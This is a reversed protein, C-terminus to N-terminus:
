PSKRCLAVGACTATSPNFPCRLAQRFRWPRSVLQVDDARGSGSTRTDDAPLSVRYDHLPQASFNAVCVLTSGDPAIRVFSVTNNAVDAGAIWRFGALESGM